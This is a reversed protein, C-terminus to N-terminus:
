KTTTVIIRTMHDILYKTYDVSAGLLHIGKINSLIKKHEVFFINFYEDIKKKLQYNQKKFFFLIVIAIVFPYMSLIPIIRLMGLSTGIAVAVHSGTNFLSPIINWVSLYYRGSYSEFSLMSKADLKEPNLSVSIIKKMLTHTFKSSLYLVCINHVGISIFSTILIFMFFNITQPKLNLFILDNQAM